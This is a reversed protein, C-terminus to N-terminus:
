LVKRAEAEADSLTRPFLTYTTSREISQGAVLHTLPGLCEMEVYPLPDANTYIQTVCGGDPYEGPGTEAEILVVCKTGVWAMRSGQSGIKVNHAPHRKLSLLRGDIKLSAPQTELLPIYGTAQYSHAPLLMCALEPDRMQTITWVAVTVPAGAVKRYETRIRMAPEDPKLEVHRVVQIGYGADVASTLVASSEGEVASVPQGDFGEPPPWAHGKAAPWASQPAPWCKDGGFNIWEKSAAPHTQGDLARNEWFAGAEDGLLRFQMVRGIAPVVIAEVHGNALRYCDPWGHYSLRSITVPAPVLEPTNKM